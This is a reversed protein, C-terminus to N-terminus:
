FEFGHPDFNLVKSKKNNRDELIKSIDHQGETEEERTRVLRSGKVM